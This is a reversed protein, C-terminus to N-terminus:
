AVLYLVYSLTKINTEISNDLHNTDEEKTLGLAPGM